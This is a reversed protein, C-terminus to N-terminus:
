FPRNFKAAANKTATELESFAKKFGEKLDKAAASGTTTLAELKQRATALQADLQDLEDRAVARGLQVTRQLNVRLEKLHAIERKLQAELEQRLSNPTSM